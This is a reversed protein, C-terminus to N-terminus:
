YKPIVLFVLYFSVNWDTSAIASCTQSLYLGQFIARQPVCCYAQQRSCSCNYRFFICLELWPARISIYCPGYNFSTVNDVISIHENNSVVSIHRKSWLWLQLSLVPAYTLRSYPHQVSTSNMKYPYAILEVDHKIQPMIIHLKWLVKNSYDRIQM